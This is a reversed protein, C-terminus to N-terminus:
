ATEKHHHVKQKERQDSNQQDRLHQTTKRDPEYDKILQNLDNINLILQAIRGYKYGQNYDSYEIVANNSNKLDNEWKNLVDQLTMTESKILLKGM